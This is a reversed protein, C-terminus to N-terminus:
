IKVLVLKWVGGMDDRQVDFIILLLSSFLSSLYYGFNFLSTFLAYTTGELNRPCLRVCLAMLPLFNIEMM